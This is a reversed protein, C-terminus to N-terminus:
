DALVSVDVASAECVALLATLSAYGDAVLQADTGPEYQADIDSYGLQVYGEGVETVNTQVAGFSALRGRRLGRLREPAVNPVNLNLVVGADAELLWPLVRGAVEVATSWYMPEGVDISVAMARCGHTSATLAAGVTGSHLIARGANPGRNIGSLVVDPRPGFAGRSATLTIFGPTAQAAYAPVRDLGALKRKEVLFRGGQQAATLSASAGSSDWAPAAVVVDLGFGVAVGALAHIGPSDIGDDNTVLVRTTRHSRAM